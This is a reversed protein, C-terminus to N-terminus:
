GDFYFDGPEPMPDTEIDDPLFVDWCEDPADTKSAADEPSQKFCAVNRLGETGKM